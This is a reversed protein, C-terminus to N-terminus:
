QASSCCSIAPSNRAGNPIKQGRLYCELGTSPFRLLRSDRKHETIEPEIYINEQHDNGSRRERKM